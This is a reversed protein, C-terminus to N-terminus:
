PTTRPFLTFTNGGRQYKTHAAKISGVHRTTLKPQWHSEQRRLVHPKQKNVPWELNCSSHKNHVTCPFESPVSRQVRLLFLCFTVWFALHRPQHPASPSVVSTRLWWFAVKHKKTVLFSSWAEEDKDWVGRSNASHQKLQAGNAPVSLSVCGNPIFKPRFLQLFGFIRFM